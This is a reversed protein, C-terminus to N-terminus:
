PHLRADMCAVVALHRAPPLPKPGGFVDTAYRANNELLEDTVSMPVGPPTSPHVADRAAAPGRPPSSGPTRGPVARDASPLARPRPRRVSSTSPTSAAAPGSPM